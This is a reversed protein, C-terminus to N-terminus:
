QDPRTHAASDNEDHFAESAHSRQSQQMHEATQLTTETPRKDTLPLLTVETVEPPGGLPTRRLLTYPYGACPRLVTNNPTVTRSSYEQIELFGELINLMLM